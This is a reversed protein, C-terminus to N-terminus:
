SVYKFLNNPLLTGNLNKMRIALNSIYQERLFTCIKVGALLSCSHRNAWIRTLQKLLQWDPLTFNVSTFYHVCM